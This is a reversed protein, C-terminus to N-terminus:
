SGDVEAEVEPLKAILGALVSRDRRERKEVAERYDALYPEVAERLWEDLLGPKLADVADLEAADDPDDERRHTNEKQPRTPLEHEEIQTATLAVPVIAQLTVGLEECFEHVRREFNERARFGSSDFDRFEFIVLPRPEERDEARFTDFSADAIAEHLFSLGDFGSTPYVNLGLDDATWFLASALDAKEIWVQAQVKTKAWLDLRHNKGVAEIFVRLDSSRRHRIVTRRGDRIADWEIGDRGPGLERLTVTMEEILRFAHSTKPLGLLAEARYAVGRRSLQRGASEVLWRTVEARAEMERKTARHERIEKGAEAAADRQEPTLLGWKAVLGALRDREPDRARKSV